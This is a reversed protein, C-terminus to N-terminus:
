ARARLFAYAHVLVCVRARSGSNIAVAWTSTVNDTADSCVDLWDGCPWRGRWWPRRRWWGGVGRAGAGVGVPLADVCLRVLAGATDHRPKASTGVVQLAAAIAHM